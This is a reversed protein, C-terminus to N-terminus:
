HIENVRNQVFVKWGKHTGQIWYLAVLSDTYCQIGLWPLNPRLSEAISIILKSLLFTSFLELHPITQVQLPAVRTKSLVFKISTGAETSAKLYVVAANPM